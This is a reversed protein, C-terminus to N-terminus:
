ICVDENRWGQRIIDMIFIDKAPDTKTNAEHRYAERAEDDRKKRKSFYEDGPAIEYGVFKLRDFARKSKIVIQEGWNGLHMARDLQQLSFSNNVFSRAFSFYSDDARYGTIIDAGKYEPLFNSLLYDRARIGIETGIQFQRNELLVALWNLINHEDSNLNLVCLGTYDITYKNAYGGADSTCAWEKALEIHETCYFGHGYDNFVSGKGYEPKEIIYESGHFITLEM